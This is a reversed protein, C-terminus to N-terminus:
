PSRPASPGSPLRIPITIWVAVPVGVNHAPTFRASRFVQEVARLAVPDVLSDTPIMRGVQGTKSVYMRFLIVVSNGAPSLAHIRERVEDVNQLQPAEDFPTFSPHLPDAAPFPDSPRFPEVPEFSDRDRMPPEPWMKPSPAPLLVRPPPPELMSLQLSVGAPIAQPEVSVRVQSFALAHLLVACIIGASLWDDASAKLRDNASRPFLLSAM